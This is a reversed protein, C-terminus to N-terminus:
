STDQGQRRDSSSPVDQGQRSGDLISTRDGDGDGTESHDRRKRRIAGQCRLHRQHGCGDRLRFGDEGDLVASRRLGGRRAQFDRQGGSAIRTAETGTPVTVPPRRTTSRPSRSGEPVRATTCNLSRAGSLPAASLVEPVTSLPRASGSGSFLETLRNVATRVWPRIVRRRNPSSPPPRSSDCNSVRFPNRYRNSLEEPVAGKLFQVVQCGGVDGPLIQM